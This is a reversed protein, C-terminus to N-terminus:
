LQENVDVMHRDESVHSGPIFSLCKFVYRKLLSNLNDNTINNADPVLMKEFPKKSADMITFISEGFILM